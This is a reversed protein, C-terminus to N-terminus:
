LIYRAMGSLGTPIGLKNVVETLQGSLVEETQLLAQSGVMLFPRKAKKLLAVARSIHSSTPTPFRYVLPEHIPIESAGGFIRDLHYGM